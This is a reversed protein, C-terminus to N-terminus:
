NRNPVQALADKARQTIEAPTSDSPTLWTGGICAVNPQALYDAVQPLRIGGTPFFRLAPLPGAIARLWATGGVIEAPFLKQLTYGADMLTMAESPTASGPVLPFSQAAAAELLAASHGPSVAFRAGADRVQTLAQAGRVSGAGVLMDPVDQAIARIAAIAAASRLTVEIASLGGALLAQATPVATAADEIVVVPVIRQAALLTSADM